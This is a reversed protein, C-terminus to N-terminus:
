NGPGALFLKKLWPLHETFFRVAEPDQYTASIVHTGIALGGCAYHGAAIGGMAVYGLAGGGLALSGAAMGGIGVLLGISVGALAFAGVALGGVAFVGRALGGVAVIGTALDGLAFVARAHGRVEGTEPDPGTAIEWLPWGYVRRKSRRRVGARRGSKQLATLRGELEDLRSILADRDSRKM